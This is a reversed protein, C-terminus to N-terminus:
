SGLEEKLQSLADGINLPKANLTRMAKSVDLSSDMPRRATWNMDKMRASNLLSSDLGFVDCLRQAFEYRSVRTADSLHYIGTLGRQIVENLMEALDSSLTPSIHQDVLVNVRERRRLKEILWLASNVKGASPRSGYIVSARAICSQEAIRETVEEGKLKSYGYHNIPNPKDDETYLGKTGDFVYDTSVYVMFANHEKALSALRATVDYNVKMALEKERECLDVDTLAAAHLVADPRISSFVEDLMDFETLDLKVPIGAPPDHKHYVSHIEHRSAFKIAFSSGLLGSAGTVLIRM